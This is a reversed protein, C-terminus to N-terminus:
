RRRASSAARGSSRRVRARLYRRPQGRELAEGGVSYWRATSDRRFNRAPATAPRAPITRAAQAAAMRDMAGLASELEAQRGLRRAVVTIGDGMPARGWGARSSRPSAPRPTGRDCPPRPLRSGAGSRTAPWRRRPERRGDVLQRTPWAIDLRRLLKGGQNPRQLIRGRDRRQRDRDVLLAPAHGPEVLRIAERRRARRRSSPRSLSGATVSASARVIASTSTAAPM